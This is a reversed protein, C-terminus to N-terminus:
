GSPTAARAQGLALRPAAAAVAVALGALLGFSARLGLGQAVGGVLPPGVLFGLYGITTVTAVAQAREHPGAWRGAAGFFIPAATSVGAGGAFFGIAAVAVSGSTAAAALGAAALVAGGGLLARDGVRGTLRQGLLRGAAMATAFAAPGAASLLSGAALERQLFLASWTEIGGEVVFAAAAVAGALVLARRFRFPAAAAVARHGPRRANPVAALLVVGGTAALISLRDLGAARLLGCLVAGGIVGLSYLAHALQMRRRGTEAELAAVETNMAVDLLGSAAGVVVLAAALTWVSGALGPLLEAAALLVLAVPLPRPLARALGRGYALMTPLMGVSIGLLALGLAGKSAGVAEQVTPVLVAWAGAFVGLAAFAALPGSWIRRQERASLM